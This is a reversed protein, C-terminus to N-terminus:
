GVRSSTIMTNSVNYPFIPLQINIYVSVQIFLKQSKVREVSSTGNNRDIIAYKESVSM